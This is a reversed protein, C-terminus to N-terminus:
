PADGRSTPYVISDKPPVEAGGTERQYQQKRLFAEYQSGPVATESAANRTEQYAIALCRWACHTLPHAGSDPDKKEGKKWKMLHSFIAAEHSKDYKWSPKAKTARKKGGDATVATLLHTFWGLIEAQENTM